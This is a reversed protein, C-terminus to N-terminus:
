ESKQGYSDIFQCVKEWTEDDPILQKLQYEFTEGSESGNEKELQMLYIAERLLQEESPVKYVFARWCLDVCISNIETRHQHESLGWMKALDKMQEITRDSLQMSTQKKSM